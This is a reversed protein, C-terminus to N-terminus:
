NKIKLNWKVKSYPARCMPCVVQKNSNKEFFALCDSHFGHACSLLSITESMNALCISCTNNKRTTFVKKVEGWNEKSSLQSTAKVKDKCAQYYAKVLERTNSLVLTTHKIDAIQLDHQQKTRRKYKDNLCAMRFAILRKKINTNDINVKEAIMRGFLDRRAIMGRVRKQIRTANLNIFNEAGDNIEIYEYRESRCLPCKKVSTHREFNDFCCKHFSHECSLLLQPELKFDQLCIACCNYVNEKKVAAQKVREWQEQNLPQRRQPILDLKEALTVSKKHKQLKEAIYKGNTKSQSELYQKREYILNHVNKDNENMISPLRKSGPKKVKPMISMQKSYLEQIAVSILIDKNIGKRKESQKRM